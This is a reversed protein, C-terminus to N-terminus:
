FGKTVGLVQYVDDAGNYVVDALDTAGPVSSLKLFSGGASVAAVEAASLARKIFQVNRITGTFFQGGASQGIEFVSAATDIAGLSGNSGSGVSAGGLYATLTTGARVMALVHDANDDLATGVQDVDIVNNSGDRVYAELKGNHLFIGFINVGNVSSAIAAGGSTGTKITAFLSFDSAGPSLDATAAVNAGQTSGDLLIGPSAWAPSGVLTATHSGGSYDTASSGSGDNFKTWLKQLPDGSLASAERRFKGGLLLTRGGTGDQKVRLLRRQGATAGSPNAFIRNGGLTVTDVTGTAWSSSITAGDTLAVEGAIRGSVYSAILGATLTAGVASGDAHTAISTGEQARAGSCVTTTSPTCLLIENGITLPFNGGSTPLVAEHLTVPVPNSTGDLAGNLTGQVFNLIQVSM